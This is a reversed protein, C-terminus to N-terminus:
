PVNSTTGVIIFPLATTVIGNDDNLRNGPVPTAGDICNADPISFYLVGSVALPDFQHISVSPCPTFTVKWFFCPVDIVFRITIVKVLYIFKILNYKCTPTRNEDENKRDDLNPM